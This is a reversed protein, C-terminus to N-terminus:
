DNIGQMWWKNLWGKMRRKIYENIGQMWGENLGGKM